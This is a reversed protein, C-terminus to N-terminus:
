GRQTTGRWTTRTFGSIKDPTSHGFRNCKRTARSARRRVSRVAWLGQRRRLAKSIGIAAAIDGPTTGPPVERVSGDPLTISLLDAM